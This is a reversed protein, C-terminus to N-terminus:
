RSEGRDVFSCAASVTIPAPRQLPPEKVSFPKLGGCAMGSLHCHHPTYPKLRQIEVKRRRPSFIDTTGQFSFLTRTGLCLVQPLFAVANMVTHAIKRLSPVPVWDVAKPLTTRCFFLTPFAELRTPINGLFLGRILRTNSKGLIGVALQPGNMGKRLARSSSCAHCRGPALFCSHIHENRAKGGGSRYRHTAEVLCTGLRDCVASLRFFGHPKLGQRLTV